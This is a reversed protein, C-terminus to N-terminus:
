ATGPALGARGLERELRALAVRGSGPGTVAEVEVRAGPGCAARLAAELEERPTAGAAVGVRGLGLRGVHARPLAAKLRDAAPRLAEVPLVAVGVTMGLRREAARLSEVVLAEEFAPRGLVELEEDFYELNRFASLPAGPAHRRERWELEGVVRRALVGLLELDFYGFDHPARDLLCLTGLAEDRRSFLPVGAYFRMGRERVWPNDRFFPNGAADQVVLAARAAVAHTCFSEERPGSRTAALDGPLGCAAHWYQQEATVISVLCIPVDFIRAVRQSFADLAESPAPRDLRLAFVAALRAHEVAADPGAPSAATAPRGAALDAIARLLADIGFPKALVAAAGAQRARALYADFASVALVPARPGPRSAYRELFGFGDMGPMLLDTVVVDPTLGQALLALAQRGDRATATAYGEAELVDAVLASLDPEDEVYLVLGRREKM